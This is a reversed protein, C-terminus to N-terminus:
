AGVRLSHQGDTLAPLPNELAGAAIPHGYGEAPLLGAFPKPFVSNIEIRCPINHREGKVNM